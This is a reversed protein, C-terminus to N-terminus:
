SPLALRGTLFSHTAFAAASQAWSIPELSQFALNLSPLKRPLVHREISQRIATSLVTGPQVESGAILVLGPDTLHILHSIGLGLLSGAHRLVELAYPDGHQALMELSTLDPAALGQERAAVLIAARAAVTDLCGRKGCACLPGDAMVTCHALEGAGGDHGRQLQGAVFQAAGIGRGITVLAFDDSGRASGYLHEFTAVANADNEVQVPVGVQARVRAALPVENWGLIASHRVVGSTAEIIGSVAVGVGLLRRADVGAHERLAAVSRGIGVAVEDLDPRGSLVTSEDALVTGKLDTLVAVLPNEDLRIGVLYGYRPELDLLVPPRGQGSPVRVTAVENILGADLLSRSLTSVAAKSLRTAAALEARHTPGHLGLYALLSRASPNM